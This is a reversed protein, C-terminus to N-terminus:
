EIHQHEQWLVRLRLIFSQGYRSRVFGYVSCTIVFAWSLWLLWDRGRQVVSPLPGVFDTPELKVNKDPSLGTNNTVFYIFHELVRSTHNFRVASRSHFLMVNPVAVTGFRANLYSFHSTDVALIDLQPFARALANYHPATRACFHCWPAYFMVLVCTSVKQNKSFNLIELLETSNVIKVEGTANATINKVACQFRTKKSSDTGNTTSNLDKNLKDHVARSGNATESANFAGEQQGAADDGFESLLSNFLTRFTYLLPFFRRKTPAPEAEQEDVLKEEGANEKQGPLFIGLKPHDSFDSELINGNDEYAISNVSSAPISEEGYNSLESYIKNIQGNIQTEEIESVINDSSREVFITEVTESILDSNKVTDLYEAKASQLDNADQPSEIVLKGIYKDSPLPSSDSTSTCAEELCHAENQAEIFPELSNVMQAVLFILFLSFRTAMAM